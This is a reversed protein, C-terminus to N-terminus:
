GATLSTQPYTLKATEISYRRTVSLCRAVAYCRATFISVIRVFSIIRLGTNVTM